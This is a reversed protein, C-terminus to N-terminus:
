HNDGSFPVGVHPPRWDPAAGPHPRRRVAARRGARPHTAVFIYYGPGDVIPFFGGRLAVFLAGSMALVLVPCGVLLRQSRTFRLLFVPALWATLPILTQLSAFPLLATGVVLWIWSWRGRHPSGPSSQKRDNEGVRPPVSGAALRKM